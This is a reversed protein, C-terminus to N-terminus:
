KNRFLGIHEAISLVICVAAVGLVVLVLIGTTRIAGSTAGLATLAAIALLVGLLASLSWGLIRSAGAGNMETRDGLRPSRRQALMEPTRRHVVVARKNIPTVTRDSAIHFVPWFSLDRRRIVVDATSFVMVAKGSRNDDTHTRVIPLLQEKTLPSDARVIRGRVKDTSFDLHGPVDTKHTRGRGQSEISGLYAFVAAAADKDNLTESM